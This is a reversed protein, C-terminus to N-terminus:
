FDRQQHGSLVRRGCLDFQWFVCADSTSAVALGAIASAVGMASAIARASAMALAFAIAIASM